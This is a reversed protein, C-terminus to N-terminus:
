TTGAAQMPWLRALWAPQAAMRVIVLAYSVMLTPRAVWYCLSGLVKIPAPGPQRHTAFIATATAACAIGFAATQWTLRRIRPMLEPVREAWRHRGALLGLLMTFMMQVYFGFMFWAGWRDAYFAAVAKANERMADIFSGTGYAANASAELAKATTVRAAVIEPTMLWWRLLGAFLPYLLCLAMLAIITRNGLHRLGVLLLLGLLAYVHLVDGPWLVFAHFVGLALLVALRRLYLADAHASDREHMRAHQITFGIGFLLSFMSNFKGSFLMERLEEAARDVPGTWLHSGDAEAFFSTGFGPMNMVLIGLLAFGRLLDLVPLRDAPPLATARTPPITAPM